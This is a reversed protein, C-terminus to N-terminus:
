QNFITTTSNKSDINEQILHNDLNFLEYSPKERLEDNAHYWVLISGNIERCEYRKVKIDPQESVKQLYVAAHQGDSPGPTCRQLDFYEYRDATRRVKNEGGTLVCHGTEGDFAWGHFPCEICSDYCVKGGIGLNAGMHPCYADLVYPTGNQGRFLVVDRGCYNLYKVDGRILDWSNILWYWGLFSL